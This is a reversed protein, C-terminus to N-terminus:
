TGLYISYFHLYFSSSVIERHSYFTHTLPIKSPSTPIPFSISSFMSLVLIGYLCATNAKTISPSLLKKITWSFSNASSSHFNILPPKFGDKRDPDKGM